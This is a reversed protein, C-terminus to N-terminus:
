LGRGKGLGAGPWAGWVPVPLGTLGAREFGETTLGGIGFGEFSGTGTLGVVSM